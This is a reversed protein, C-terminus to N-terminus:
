TEWNLVSTKFVTKFTRWFTEINFINNNEIIYLMKEVKRKRPNKSSLILWNKLLFKYM